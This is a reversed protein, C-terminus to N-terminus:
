MVLKQKAVEPVDITIATDKGRGTGCCIDLTPRPRERPRACWNMRGAGGAIINKQLELLTNRWDDITHM